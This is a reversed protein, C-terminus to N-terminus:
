LLKSCKESVSCAFALHTALKSLHTALKANQKGWALPCDTNSIPHLEMNFELIQNELPQRVIKSANEDSPATIVAFYHLFMQGM